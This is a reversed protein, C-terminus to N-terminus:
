AAELPIEILKDLMKGARTLTDKAAKFHLGLRILAPLQYPHKLLHFVLKLLDVQGSADVATVVAEPLDMDCPDAIARVSLFPLGKRNAVKAVAASEMDLAAANFKMALKQKEAASAIVGNSEAIGRRIQSCDDLLACAHELWQKHTELV